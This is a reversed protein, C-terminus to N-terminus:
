SAVVTASLAVTRARGSKTEKFRLGAGTQEVSEVIAIQGQDFDVNRWRVALIEGRRLGCLVALITPFFMRTGRAAELLDATEDLNHHVTRPSLGGKGDRRGSVLAKAYASAIQEPRLKTLAAGGLLPVINKRAIEEYREHSRPSVQSRMHELWRDMFASVTVKAPEVYSGADMEAVLRACEKQAERKTGAFSHWKRKRKGTAPDPADLIIAWRGPSRERIHGKM